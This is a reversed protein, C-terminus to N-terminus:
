ACSSINFCVRPPQNEEELGSLNSIGDATFGASAGRAASGPLQIVPHMARNSNTPKFFYYYLKGQTASRNERTNSFASFVSKIRPLVRLQWRLFSSM